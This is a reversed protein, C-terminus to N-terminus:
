GTTIDGGNEINNWLDQNDAVSLGSINFLGKYFDEIADDGITNKDIGLAEEMYDM